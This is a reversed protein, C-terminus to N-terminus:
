HWGLEAIVAKACAVMAEVSPLQRALDGHQGQDFSLVNFAVRLAELAALDGQSMNEPSQQDPLADYTM